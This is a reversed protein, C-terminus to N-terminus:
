SVPMDHEDAFIQATNIKVAPTEDCKNGVLIRPVDKLSNEDCEAIWNKLSEFSKLSTVDYVLIVADTNRYYHQVM